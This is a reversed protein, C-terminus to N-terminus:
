IDEQSKRDEVFPRPGDLCGPNGENELVPGRGAVMAVNMRGDQQPRRPTRRSGDQWVRSSPRAGPMASSLPERSAAHLTWYPSLHSCTDVGTWGGWSGQEARGGGSTLIVGAVDLQERM